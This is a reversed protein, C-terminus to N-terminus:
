DFPRDQTEDFTSSDFHAFCDGRKDDDGLAFGKRPHGWENIRNTFSQDGTTNNQM